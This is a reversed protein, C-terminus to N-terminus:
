RSPPEHATAQAERRARAASWLWLGHAILLVLIAGVVAFLLHAPSRRPLFAYSLAAFGAAGATGALLEVTVGLFGRRFPWTMAALAACIGIAICGLLVDPTM